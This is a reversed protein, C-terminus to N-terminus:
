YGEPLWGYKALFFASMGEPDAQLMELAEPPTAEVREVHAMQEAQQEWADAMGRENGNDSMYDAKFKNYMAVKEAVRRSAALFEQIEEKGANDAPFGSMVIQIDKDSAPGKPLAKIGESNRLKIYQTRLYDDDSRRGAAKNIYTDVTQGWGGTSLNQKEINAEMSAIESALATAEQYGDNADSLRKQQHVSMDQGGTQTPDKPNRALVEGDPGVLYAGDALTKNEREEMRKSLYDEPTLAGSQLGAVADTDGNNKALAIAQFKKARDKKRAVEENMGQQGAELMANQKANVAAEKAQAAQMYKAAMVPDGGKNAADAAAYLGEATSLDLQRIDHGAQAQRAAPNMFNYPDPAPAGEKQPLKGMGQAAVNGLGRSAIDLMPKASPRQGIINNLQSFMGSLNAAM